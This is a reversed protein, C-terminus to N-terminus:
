YPDIYENHGIKTIFNYPRSKWMFHLYKWFHNLISLLYLIGESTYLIFDQFLKSSTKSLKDFWLHKKLSRRTNGLCLCTNLIHNLFSSQSCMKWNCRRMSWQVSYLGIQVNEKIPCPTTYRIELIEMCSAFKKEIIHCVPHPIIVVTVWLEEYALCCFRLYVNSIIWEEPVVNACKWKCSSCDHM